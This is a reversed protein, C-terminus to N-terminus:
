DRSRVGQSVSDKKMEDLENLRSTLNNIDKAIQSFEDNRSTDLRYFYKGDAIARTGETLHALPKSISRIILLSVLVSIAIAAFAACWLLLVATEGTKRSNEVKSSMSRLAAQYVSRTQARLNEIDEQLAIPLSTEQQPLSQQLLGLDAMYSDWHQSLRKVEAQEEGSNAHTKLDRLSRRFAEQFEKLQKQHIDSVFSKSTFDVVSELDSIATLCTLANQFNIERLTKSIAQMRHITLVQYVVLGALVAIFLGYGSIIRTTIKM